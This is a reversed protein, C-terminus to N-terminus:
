SAFRGFYLCVRVFWPLQHRYFISPLPHVQLLSPNRALFCHYKRCVRYTVRRYFLFSGYTAWLIRHILFTSAPKTHKKM